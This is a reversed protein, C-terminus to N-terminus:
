LIDETQKKHIESYIFVAIGKILVILSDVFQEPPLPDKEYLWRAITCTFGDAMFDICFDPLEQLEQLESVQTLRQIVAARVLDHFHELFSNQGRIHLANCYFRRNEYFYQCLELLLDVRREYTEAGAAAMFETDFIWNVLDYKDKFHYYFSKRNMGCRECIEGIGIKELPKEAMVEKLAAALVNKTTNREAIESVGERRM